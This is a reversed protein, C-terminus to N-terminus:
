QYSLVIEETVEALSRTPMWDQLLSSSFGQEKDNYELFLQPPAEPFTSPCLFYIMLRNKEPDHLPVTIYYAEDDKKLEAPLGLTRLTYVEDGIREDRSAHQSLGGIGVVQNELLPTEISPAVVIGQQIDSHARQILSRAVTQTGTHAFYNTTIDLLASVYDLRDDSFDIFRNLNQMIKETSLDYSRLFQDFWINTAAFSRQLFNLQEATNNGPILGSTGGGGTNLQQFMAHRELASPTMRELTEMTFRAFNPGLPLLGDFCILGVMRILSEERYHSLAKSFDRFNLNRFSINNLMCFAMLEVLVKMSLDIAQSTDAKPTMWKLFSLFAVKDGIKNAMAATGLAMGAKDVTRYLWLTRRYGLDPEINYLHLAHQQIHAIRHIDTEGTVHTIMNDFGVVNEWRYGPIVFDLARLVYVTVNNSPLTDIMHHIQTPTSM